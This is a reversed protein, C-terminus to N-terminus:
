PSEGPISEVLRVFADGRAEYNAFQDWSACAPSLLVVEGARARGVAESVARSLTECWLSGDGAADALGRGTAGISYLGALDRAARAIPSLDMGKDYGGAILHVRARKAAEGDCLAEIALLAAEPTTSKSDNYYRVGRREAVFALRHPLGPFSAMAAAASRADVGAAGCALLAASANLRNHRGPVRLEPVRPDEAIVRRVVGVGTPWEQAGSGLIATDGRGQRGLISRKSNEYHALTGHWDLHNPGFNTVIAVRPSWRRPAAENLWYMQASSLELVIWDAAAARDLDMLLSGGINGGLITSAGSASIAHAVMAATTSKGASGTVAIVRDRGLRDVVLGIETEIPVGAARAARLFRDDWPRPVAPNAIVLDCTTFDAVNHGGLRLTISGRDVLDAIRALSDVLQESPSLDTVLVEAGQQALFRAVGVGGGFRGLGMVTVRRSELPVTTTLNCM